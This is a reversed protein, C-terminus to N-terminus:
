EESGDEAMRVIRPMFKGVIAVLSEQREMVMDIDKYAMPSEDVGGGMLIVNREALHDKVMRNTIRKKAETRSFNRGAGHSASNLSDTNGKGQVIFAHSAMSGPIIGLVGKGAPTAGKRHVIVERGDHMEKWAFNHHNEIMAIPREGLAKSLRKHIDHHCASAYDGAMSMAIWYEQGEQTDLDLWALYKAEQPLVCKKIAVDTYHKALTAGFARSGSHTMFGFYKGIEIGLTNNPEIIEIEGIDAFHNSGGSTGLQKWARDKLNKMIRIENFESRHFIEHDSPREHVEVPGFKTHDLLMQKLPHIHRDIYNDPMKYISLCMRCGIDMGVGYPIVANETALVGGIPLGYGAHGDPMLAGRVSIPLRAATAMQKLAGEEIMGEGYSRVPVADDNLDKKTLDVKPILADAVGGFVEDGVFAAPDNLVRKLDALVIDRKENPHYHKSVARLAEGLAKTKPFGLEILDNGKLNAM